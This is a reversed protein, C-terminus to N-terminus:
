PTSSTRPAEEVEDVICSHFWIDRKLSERHEYIYAAMLDVVISKVSIYMRLVKLVVIRQHPCKSKSCKRVDMYSLENFCRNVRELRQKFVDIWIYSFGGSKTDGFDVVMVSM